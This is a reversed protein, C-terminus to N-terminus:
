PADALATAVFDTRCEDRAYEIPPLVDGDGWHCTEALPDERHGTVVVWAPADGFALASAPLVNLALWSCNDDGGCM